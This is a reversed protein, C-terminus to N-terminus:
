SSKQLAARLARRSRVKDLWARAADRLLKLQRVVTMRGPVRRLDDRFSECDDTRRQWVRASRLVERVVEMMHDEGILSYIIEITPRHRFAGVRSDDIVRVIEHFEAREVIRYTKGLVQIMGRSTM